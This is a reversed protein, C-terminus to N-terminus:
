KVELVKLLNTTGQASVPSGMTVVIVDGKTLINARLAKECAADIRSDTDERNEVMLSYVGYYLALRRRVKISPTTAYIPIATRYKSVLAASKGTQTFVLIAEAGVHESVSCAGYGIADTMSLRSGKVPQCNNWKSLTEKEVDEAIRSMVSVAEVPFQGSATEASLMLADTGDIVSNAVDSTEARTPRPNTVMSELMQTATIVPKGAENCKSIINKQILPVKEPDIEVGLDGRAVMIGDSIKLISDINAVAEPKEIKAIVPIDSSNNSIIEKVEAIDEASRVFSLAIYDVDNNICFLLDEKDKESLSKASVKTNPLNIGKRSKLIGGHVTECCVENGQINTVKFELLGDDMLIRDGVAVDNAFDKYSTSVKGNLGECEDTTIVLQSGNAVSMQGGEILGVRIKPGQLDGLIAISRNLKLAILRISKIIEAKNELSGHSFNLRFVNVGAEVLKELIESDDSAPGVTAVIKTRKRTIKM